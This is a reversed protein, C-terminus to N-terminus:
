RNTASTLSEFLSAASIVIVSRSLIETTSSGIPVM